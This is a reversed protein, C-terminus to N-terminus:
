IKMFNLWFLSSSIFSMETCHEQCYCRLQINTGQKYMAFDPDAM